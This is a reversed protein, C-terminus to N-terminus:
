TRVKNYEETMKKYFLISTLRNKCLNKDIHLNFNIIHPYNNNELKKLLSRKLKLSDGTNKLYNNINIQNKLLSQKTILYIKDCTMLLTDTFSEDRNICSNSNHLTIDGNSSYKVSLYGYFVIYLDVRKANPLSRVKLCCETFVECLIYEITNGVDFRNCPEKTGFQNLLYELKGKVTNIKSDLLKFLLSDSLYYKKKIWRQLKIVKNINLNGFTLVEQDKSLYNTM